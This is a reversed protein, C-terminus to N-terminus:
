VERDLQSDYNSLRRIENNIENIKQKYMDEMFSQEILQAEVEELEMEVRQVAQLRDEIIKADGSQTSWDCRAYDFAIVQGNLRIAM